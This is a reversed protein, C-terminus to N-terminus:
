LVRWLYLFKIGITWHCSYSITIQDICNRRLISTCQQKLFYSMSFKTLIGRWIFFNEMCTSSESREAQIDAIHKLIGIDVTGVFSSSRPSSLVHLFNWISLKFVSPAYICVSLVLDVWRTMSIMWIHIYTYIKYLRRCKRRPIIFNTAFKICRTWSIFIMDYKQCWM